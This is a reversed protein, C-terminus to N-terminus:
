GPGRLCMLGAPYGKGGEGYLQPDSPLSLNRSLIRIRKNDKGHLIAFREPGWEVGRYCALSLM